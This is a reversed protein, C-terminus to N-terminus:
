KHLDVITNAIDALTDLPKIVHTIREYLQRDKEVYGLAHWIPVEQPPPQREPLFWGADRLPKLWAPSDLNFFFYRYLVEPKLLADLTKIMNNNLEKTKM